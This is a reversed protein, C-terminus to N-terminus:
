SKRKMSLPFAKRKILFFDMLYFYKCLLGSVILAIFIHVLLTTIFRFTFTMGLSLASFNLLM